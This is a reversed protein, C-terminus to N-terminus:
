EYGGRPADTSVASAPKGTISVPAPVPARVTVMPDLHYLDCATLGMVQRRVEPPFSAATFDPTDGDWHPFDSSFMAMREAPFMRMIQRVHDPNPSEEIPQTTLRVHDAAIESPPRDLWPATMRLARWNKDLRWLLTPLWAVGGEVLVFKLDPHRQFTGEALLSVLHAQFTGSLSTHWELYSGPQGVATAQLSVGVGEFGPHVAVPLGLESAAEYIPDFFRRGLAMPTASPMLVQVVGPTRGVRRIEKAALVPDVPSVLMSVRYRPDVPLWDEIITDNTASAIAAGWDSEPTVAFTFSALNLMGYTIGNRDLHHEAMAHPDTDIYRGDPLRTDRRIVGNPNWYGSGGAGRSGSEWRSRWPQPLRREIAKPDPTFHIDCDVILLDSAAGVPIAPRVAAPLAESAVPHGNTGAKSVQTTTVAKMEVDDPIIARPL